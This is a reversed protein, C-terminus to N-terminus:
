PLSVLFIFSFSRAPSRLRLFFSSPPFCCLSFLFLPPYNQPWSSSVFALDFLLSRPFPVLRFHCVFIFLFPFLVFDLGTCAHPSPACLRGFSSEKWNLSSSPPHSILHFLLLTSDQHERRPPPFSTPPISSPPQTVRHNALPVPSSFLLPTEPCFSSRM